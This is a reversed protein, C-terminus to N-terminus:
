RHAVLSAKAALGLARDLTLGERAALAYRTIGDALWAADDAAPAEGSELAAAVRCLGDIAAGTV